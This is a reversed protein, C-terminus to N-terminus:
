VPAAEGHHNRRIAQKCVYVAARFHRGNEPLTELPLKGRQGFLDEALSNGGAQDALCPTIPFLAIGSYRAFSLRARAPTVQSSFPAPCFPHLM